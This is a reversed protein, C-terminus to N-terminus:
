WGCGSPPRRIKRGSLSKLDEWIRTDPLRGQLEKESESKLKQMEKENQEELRLFFIRLQGRNGLYYDGKQDWLFM